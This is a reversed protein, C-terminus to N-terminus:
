EHLFKENHVDFFSKPLQLDSTRKFRNREEMIKSVVMIGIRSSLDIECM